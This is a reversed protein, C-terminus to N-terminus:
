YKYWNVSYIESVIKCKTLSDFFIFIFIPTERWLQNLQKGIIKSKSLQIETLHNLIWNKERSNTEEIIYKSM